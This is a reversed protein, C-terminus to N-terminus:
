TYKYESSTKVTCQGWPTPVEGLSFIASQWAMESASPFNVNLDIGQPLKKKCKSTTM